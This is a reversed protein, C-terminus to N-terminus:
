GAPVLPGTQAALIRMLTRALKHPDHKWPQKEDVLDARHVPYPLPHHPDELVWDVGPPLPLDHRNNLLVLDVCDGGTHEELARVYDHAMYGDTEGPQNAVNVVFVRLARTAKLAAQIEPVLLNPLISTYLSGPGIVVMQANLIAQVALPFAPPNEPILWVRQIRGPVEPIRSEGVVRIPRDEYPVLVDAALNVQELTSPVVRGRLSLVREMELVAQEFSGTLGVMATLFLNGFSHGDLESGQNKPFRYQLLRSLLDEDDALAVLCNRIDGPPLIGLTRRLRGSSGGDDAVTVVATLNHTHHKLGRLATSQGTGGGIVVIHPGQAREHYRTLLDLFSRDERLFPAILSRSLGLLGLVVFVLGAGGFILVRLPRPLFQLAAGSLLPTWWADPGATRYVHLVAMALGVAMLFLGILMVLFWRKIGLGPRFLFLARRLHTGWQRWRRTPRRPGSGNSSAQM